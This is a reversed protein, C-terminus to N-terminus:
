REFRRMKKRSDEKSINRRETVLLFTASFAFLFGITYGLALESHMPERNM